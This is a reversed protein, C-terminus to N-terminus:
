LKKTAERILDMFTQLVPSIWKDKRWIMLLKAKFDKGKWPLISLLNNSIDDKIIKDSILTMGTGEIVCKRIAENSNFDLIVKPEIKAETLTREIMRRYSCDQQPLILTQNKFDNIDIEKKSVLPNNPNTVFFLPINTLTETILNPAQYEEDTILFALNTMGSKFEQELPFFASSNFSCRIKPYKEHFKTLVSPLYYTSVTQPMRIFLAGQHEDKIIIQSKLEDEIDLMRQAYQLLLEGAETLMIGKGDRKFLQMNLDIELNKIQESVTSQAYNLVKAAKHFSRLTAITRFTRIQRLEM